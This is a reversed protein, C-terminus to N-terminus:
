WRENEWKEYMEEDRRRDAVEEERALREHLRHLRAKEAEYREYDNDPFEEIPM